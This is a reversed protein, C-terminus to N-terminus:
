ILITLFLESLGQLGSIKDIMNTSLSLKEVNTLTGLTTDMKEIPPFVGNLKVERAEAPDEGPHKEEWLKLAEKITTPKPAA